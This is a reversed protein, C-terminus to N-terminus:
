KSFETNCQVPLNKKKYGTYSNTYGYWVFINRNKNQKTFTFVSSVTYFFRLSHPASCLNFSWLGILRHCNTRKRIAIPPSFQEITNHYINNLSWLNNKVGTSLFKVNYSFLNWRHWYVYITNSSLIIKKPIKDRNNRYERWWQENCNKKLWELFHRQMWKNKYTSIIIM